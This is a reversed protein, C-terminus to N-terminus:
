KFKIVDVLVAHLVFRQQTHIASYNTCTSFTVIKTDAKIYDKMDKKWNYLGKDYIGQLFSIWDSDKLFDQRIYNDYQTTAYISFPQYIYVSDLTYIRITSTDFLEWSRQDNKFLQPIVGFMTGNSMNHGFLVLNKTDAVNNASRYDAFITGSKVGDRGGYTKNLYVSNNDTKVVPYDINTNTMQVWCYFDDNLSAIKKLNSKIDSINAVDDLPFAASIDSIDLVDGINKSTNNKHKLMSLTDDYENKATIADFVWDALLTASYIFGGIFVILLLVSFFSWRKKKKKPPINDEEDDESNEM